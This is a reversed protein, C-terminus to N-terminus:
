GNPGHTNVWDSNDSPANAYPSYSVLQDLFVHALADVIFPKERTLLGDYTRFGNLNGPEEPSRYKGIYMRTGQEDFNVSVFKRDGHEGDWSLTIQEGDEKGSLSSNHFKGDIFKEKIGELEQIVGSEQIAELIRQHRRTQEEKIRDKAPHLVTSGHKEESNPHDLLEQVREAAKMHRM